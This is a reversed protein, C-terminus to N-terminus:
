RQSMTRWESPTVGYTARFRKTFHSPNTFGWAHAVATITRPPDEHTALDARAGGLRQRIIWDELGLGDQQCLKYLQRVSIHHARAIQHPTLDQDALHRRVYSKVQQVLVTPGVPPGAPDDLGATQILAHMLDITIDGVRAATDGAPLRHAHLTLNRIHDRVLTYLPSSPLRPAARTITDMPLGLRDRDVQFAYSTGLGSWGYEYPAELDVLLLDDAHLVREERGWRFRNAGALPLALAIADQEDRRAIRPTRRLTNGTAEVNFVRGAGLPFFHVQARFGPQDEFEVLSTSAHGSIADQFAAARERSPLLDTDLVLM